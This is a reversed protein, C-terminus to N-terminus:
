LCCGYELRQLLVISVRQNRPNNLLQIHSHPTATGAVEGAVLSLPLVLVVTIHPLSWWAWLVSFLHSPVNYNCKRSAWYYEGGLLCFITKKKSVWRTDLCRRLFSRKPIEVLAYSWCSAIIKVHNLLRARYNIVFKNIIAYTCTNHTHTSFITSFLPRPFLCSKIPSIYSYKKFM